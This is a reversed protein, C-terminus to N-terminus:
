LDEEEELDTEASLMKRVDAISDAATEMAADCIAELTVGEDERETLVTMLTALNTGTIHYVNFDRTLEVVSNFPTGFKLETMFIINEAGYQEVEARLQEVLSEKTQEPYISYAAMNEQPGLLMQVSNLMGKSQEGHSVLVVRIKPTDM